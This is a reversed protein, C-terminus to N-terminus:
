AARGSFFHWERFADDGELVEIRANVKPLPQWEIERLELNLIPSGVEFSRANEPCWAIPRVRLGM